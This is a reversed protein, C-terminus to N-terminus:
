GRTCPRRALPGPRACLGSSWDFHSSPDCASRVRGRHLSRRSPLVGCVLSAEGWRVGRRLRPPPRQVLRIAGRHFPEEPVVEAGDAHVCILGCGRGRTREPRVRVGEPVVDDEAVAAVRGSRRASPPQEGVLERVHHLLLAAQRFPRRELALRLGRLPALPRRAGITRLPSPGRRGCRDDLERGVVRRGACPQLLDLFAEPLQAGTLLPQALAEAAGHELLPLALRQRAAPLAELGLRAALGGRRVQPAPGERSAPDPFRSRHRQAPAGRVHGGVDPDGVEGERVVLRLLLRRDVDRPDLRRNAADPLDVDCVALVRPHLEPEHRLDAPHRLARWLRRVREQDLDASGVLLRRRSVGDVAEDAEGGRVELPRPHDDDRM